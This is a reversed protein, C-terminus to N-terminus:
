WRRPRSRACGGRRSPSDGGVRGVLLPHRRGEAPRAEGGPLVAAEFQGAYGRSPDLQPGAGGAPHEAFGGLDIGTIDAVETIQAHDHCWTAAEKAADSGAVAGGQGLGLQAPAWM